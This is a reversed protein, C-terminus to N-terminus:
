VEERGMKHFNKVLNRLLFMWLKVIRPVVISYTDLSTHRFPFPNSAFFLTKAGKERFPIHDSRGSRGYTFTFEKRIRLFNLFKELREVFYQDSKGEADGILIAPNHWGVTDVSIVFSNILIRESLTNVFFKAGLLGFEEADTFLFRVRYPRYIKDKSYIAALWLLIAVSLANDIAGKTYPKTDYHAVLTLTHQAKNNGFELWINEGKLKVKKLNINAKVWGLPGVLSSKKVAITPLLGASIGAYFDDVEERYVLAGKAGLRYLLEEKKRYPLKGEKILVVKNKPKCKLLESYTGFGCDIIEGYFNGSKSNTYPLGKFTSLNTKIDVWPPKYLTYEFTQTKVDGLRRLFKKIFERVTLHHKTGPFRNELSIFEALKLVSNLPSSLPDKQM